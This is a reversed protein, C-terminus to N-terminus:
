PEKGLAPFEVTFTSGSGLTSEVSVVGGHSEVIAKVLALGLGTGNSKGRIANSARFFKTFLRSLDEPAIGVGSDKVAVRVGRSSPAVAVYITGGDGTYKIANSLLNTFVLMGRETDLMVPRAPECSYFLVINKREASIRADDVATKVMVALDTRVPKYEMMGAEIRSLDLFQNSFTAIKEVNERITGLLRRQDDTLPGHKPETLIYHAAHITQLPTRLEHTIQQMMEVKYTNIKNLTDSMKNFANALHAMEDTSTVQIPDFSGRAVRETGHVLTSIPRTITRAIFFAMIISALLTGGTLILALRLSRTATSEVDAMAHTIVGQKRTILDDLSRHIADLSDTRSRDDLDEEEIIGQAHWAHIRRDNQVMRHDEESTSLRDLSDLSQRFLRNAELFLGRYVSDRSILFKQAHREEEYLITHLQKALDISQVDLTLARTTTTAVHHLQYLIYSNAAIMVVIIVGFGALMKRHITLKM